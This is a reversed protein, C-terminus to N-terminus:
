LSAKIRDLIAEGGNLPITESPISVHALARFKKLREKLLRPYSSKLSAEVTPGEMSFYEGWVVPKPVAFFRETFRGVAEDGADLHVVLYNRRLSEQAGDSLHVVSGTTDLVANGSEGRPHTTYKEELALYQRERDGYAESGPYGLWAALGGTGDVLHLEAGIESDVDFHVFHLASKLAQSRTTKGTNSMGILALRLRGERTRAEFEPVDM